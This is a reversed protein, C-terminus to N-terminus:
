PATRGNSLRLASLLGAHDYRYISDPADGAEGPTSRLRIVRGAGAPGADDPHSLIALDPEPGGTEAIRYGAAEVIPRLFTQVWPDGDPLSCAPPAEGSTVSRNRAFVKYPSVITTAEGDILHICETEGSGAGALDNAMVEADVHRVGLAERIAYAIESRGDSLRFFRLTGNDPEGYELGTLPLIRDGIVVLNRGDDTMVAGTGVEEIRDIVAMSIAKRTGDLGTFLLMQTTTHTVPVRARAENEKATSELVDPQLGGTRALGAVELLLMPHGDDTMTTGAYVDTASIVPALPRVVLEEHAHLRDVALAFHRGGQLRLVILTQDDWPVGSELELVDALALCPLRRERIKVLMGEGHRSLEIVGGDAGNGIVIEEISSRPIAFRQSGVSVTLAPIITLTLPVRLTFRTGEGPSSEVEIAGGVRELNARVVDMGVGRGSISTVTAATTIGPEFILAARETRSLRAAKETDIIGAALAKEVIREENLGRGDDIVDILIQNGTQRASISLLGIAPKGCALRDEPTEIGHDIANRIVHTLPNRVIEIMERDLEVESGQIDVAVQKGLEISLDRALRPAASFLGELHQMRTRTMADRVDAIITSLREFPEHVAAEVDSERLRRALENRALVMDSVGNMVRDLLEVTLRISRRNSSPREHEDGTGGDSAPVLLQPAHSPMPAQAITTPPELAAILTIDDDEPLATGAEVADVVDGIRDIVALVASVLASDPKRRNARVDALVDEAAHSLAELRPFDFFGCNGKVTHFFRFIADLRARDDPYEEWSVLEGGLTELMERTEALFEAFLDDM